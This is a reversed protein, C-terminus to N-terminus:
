EKRQFVVVREIGGYDNVIRQLAFHGTGTFISAIDRSQGAGAEVACFGDVKVYPVVDGAIRRYYELGDEGGFLALAPDHRVEPQLHHVASSTRLNRFIVYSKM